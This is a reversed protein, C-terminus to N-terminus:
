TDRKRIWKKIAPKERVWLWLKPDFWRSGGRQFIYFNDSRAWIQSTKLFVSVFLQHFNGSDVLKTTNWSSGLLRGPNYLGWEDLYLDKQPHISLTLNCMTIEIMLYFRKLKRWKKFRCFLIFGVQPSSASRTTFAEFNKSDEFYKTLFPLTKGKETLEVHLELATLLYGEKVLFDAM